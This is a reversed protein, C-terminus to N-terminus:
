FTNSKIYILQIDSINKLSFIDWDNFSWCIIIWYARYCHFIKEYSKGEIEQGYNKSSDLKQKQTSNNVADM